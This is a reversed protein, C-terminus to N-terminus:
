DAFFLHHLNYDVTGFSQIPLTIIPNASIAVIYCCLKNDAYLCQFRRKQWKM